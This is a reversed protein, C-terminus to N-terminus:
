AGALFTRKFFIRARGESGTKLSSCDRRDKAKHQQCAGLPAKPVLVGSEKWILAWLWGQPDGKATHAPPRASVRAGQRTDQGTPLLVKGIEADGPVEEVTRLPLWSPPLHVRM